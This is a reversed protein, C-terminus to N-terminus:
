LQEWAKRISERQPAADDLSTWVEWLQKKMEASKEEWDLSRRLLREYERLSNIYASGGADMSRLGDIERGLRNTLRRSQDRWYGAGGDVTELMKDLRQRKEIAKETERKWYHCNPCTGRDFQPEDSM